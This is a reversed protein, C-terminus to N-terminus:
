LNPFELLNLRPLTDPLDLEYADGKGDWIFAAVAAALQRLDSTRPLDPAKPGIWGAQRIKERVFDAVTLAAIPNGALHALHYANIDKIGCPLSGRWVHKGALREKWKFYAALGRPDRDTLVMFHDAQCIQELAFDSLSGSAGGLTVVPGIQGAEQMLTAADMEGEVILVPAPLQSPHIEAHPYLEHRDTGALSIYRDEPKGNAKLPLPADPTELQRRIVAGRYIPVEPLSGRAVLPIVIGRLVHMLGDKDPKRLAAFPGLARYEPNFGFSLQNITLDDLGRGHLYALAPGGAKSRLAKKSAAIVQAVAAQWDLDAQAQPRIPIIRPSPAVRLRPKIPIVDCMPDVHLAVEKPSMGRLLQYWDFVDGGNDCRFCFFSDTDPYYELARNLDECLACNFRNGSGSDNCDAVLCARLNALRKIRDFDITNITKM